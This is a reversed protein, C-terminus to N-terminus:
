IKINLTNKKSFLQNVIKAKYTKGELILNITKREGRKLFAELQKQFMVQISVPISFGERLTSWDVEKKYIYFFDNNIMKNEVDM